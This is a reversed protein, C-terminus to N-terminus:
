LKRPHITDRACFWVLGVSVISYFERCWSNKKKGLGLLPRRQECIKVSRPRKRFAGLRLWVPLVLPVEVRVCIEKGGYGHGHYEGLFRRIIMIIIVKRGKPIHMFNKKKAFGSRWCKHLPPVEPLKTKDIDVENLQIVHGNIWNSGVRFGM